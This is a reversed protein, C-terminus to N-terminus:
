IGFRKRIQAPIIASDKSDAVEETAVPKATSKSAPVPKAKTAPKAAAKHAAKAAPKSTPKVAPKASAVPKKPKQAPM